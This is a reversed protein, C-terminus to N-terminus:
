LAEIDKSTCDAPATVPNCRSPTGSPVEFVYPTGPVAAPYDTSIFQAGSRLAAELRATDGATPEVSDSDARTRVLFGNSVADLIAAEGGIPDNMIVFASYPENVGVLPFLVRGELNPHGERYETVQADTAEMAFIAKGRTAGLTPWGRGLVAERLTASDGRVDDPTVVRERPWVDLIQADLSATGGALDSKIELMIVIAHHLPHADSWTRLAQLCDAFRLCTTRDDVTPIHYVALGDAGDWLDLEVQRVGASELQDGLPAHSYSWPGGPQAGDPALHYSNHTGKAQVHSILLVGDRPHAVPPPAADSGNGSCAAAFGFLVLLASRM